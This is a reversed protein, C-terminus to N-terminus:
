TCLNRRFQRRSGESRQPEGCLASDIRPRRDAPRAGAAPCVAELFAFHNARLQDAGGTKIAEHVPLSEVVTWCLGAEAITARRATIAEASWVAGNPIEHLATVVETAGAQRIHALPVPDGPGFWRMTQTMMMSGHDARVM